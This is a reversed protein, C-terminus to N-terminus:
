YSVVVCSFLIVLDVFSCSTLYLVWSNLDKSLPIIAANGLRFSIFLACSASSSFNFTELLSKGDQLIFSCKHLATVTSESAPHRSVPKQESVNDILWSVPRQLALLCWVMDIPM